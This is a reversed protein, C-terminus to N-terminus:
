AKQFLNKRSVTAVFEKLYFPEFYATDEFREAKFAAEALRAMAAAKPWSEIFLDGERSLVARCKEVCDGIYLIGGEAKEAAFSEETVIEPRVESLRECEPSYSATYVEMRRADLLPIIRKIGATLHESAEEALIDLTPIGILPIGAGFCIGKATSVGVRLGTYSGPGSSVAVADLDKAGLGRESLIDRIFPATLAAHSRGSDDVREAVVEGDVSIAVSCLRASTEILLITM